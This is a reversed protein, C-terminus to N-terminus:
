WESNESWLMAIFKLDNILYGDKKWTNNERILQELSILNDNFEKGNIDTPAINTYIDLFFDEIESTENKKQDKHLTDAMDQIVHLNVLEQHFKTDNANINAEHFDDWTARKIPSEPTFLLYRM